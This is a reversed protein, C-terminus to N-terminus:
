LYFTPTESFQTSCPTEFGSVSHSQEGAKRHTLFRSRIPEWFAKSAVNHKHRSVWFYIFLLLHKWTWHSWQFLENEGGLKKKKIPQLNDPSEKPWKSNVTMNYNKYMMKIYGKRKLLSASSERQIQSIFPM